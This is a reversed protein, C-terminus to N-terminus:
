LTLVVDVLGRGTTQAVSFPMHIRLLALHAELIGRYETRALPGNEGEEFRAWSGLNPGARADRGHFSRVDSVAQGCICHM